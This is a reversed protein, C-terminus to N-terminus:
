LGTRFGEFAGPGMADPDETGVVPARCHKKRWATHIDGLLTKTMEVSEWVAVWDVDKREVMIEKLRDAVDHAFELKPPPLDEDPSEYAYGAALAAVCPWSRERGMNIQVRDPKLGPHKDSQFRGEADRHHGM